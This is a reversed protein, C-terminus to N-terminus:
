ADYARDANFISGRVAKLRKLMSRLTQSDSCRYSTIKAKLIILHDIIAIIHYKLHIIRRVAEFCRKERSPKVVWPNIRNGFFDTLVGIWTAKGCREFYKPGAHTYPVEMNILKAGCRYAMAVGFGTNAPCYATNFLWGPTISLYLRTVCGTCLVVGKVRFVKMLPDDRSVDLGIAGVVRGNRTILDIIPTRGLM